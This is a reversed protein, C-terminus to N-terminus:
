SARRLHQEVQRRTQFGLKNAVNCLHSIIMRPALGLMAAIEEHSRGAAYLDAIQKERATLHKM